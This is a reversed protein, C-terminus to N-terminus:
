RNWVHRDADEVERQREGIASKREVTEAHKNRRHKSLTNESYDEARRNKGVVCGGSMRKEGAERSTCKKRRHCVHRVTRHTLAGECFNSSVKRELARWFNKRCAAQWGGDWAKGDAVRRKHARELLRESM